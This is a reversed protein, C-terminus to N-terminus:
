SSENKALRYNSYRMMSLVDDSFNLDVAVDECYINELYKKRDYPWPPFLENDILQVQTAQGSTMTFTNGTVYSLQKLAFMQQYIPFNLPDQPKIWRIPGIDICPYTLDQVNATSVLGPRVYLRCNDAPLEAAKMEEFISVAEYVLFRRFQSMELYDHWTTFYLNSPPDNGDQVTYLKEPVDFYRTEWDLASTLLPASMTAPWM